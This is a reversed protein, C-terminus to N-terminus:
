VDLVCRLIHAGEPTKSYELGSYTAGKVETKVSHRARSFQEGHAVGTFGFGIDTKKIEMCELRKLAIDDRGQVSLAENLVEVFLLEIDRAEASIEVSTREDITDLDFMVNLMAAAGEEFAAELTEGTACIGIDSIHESYTYPM